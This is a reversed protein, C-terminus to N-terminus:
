MYIIMEVFCGLIVLTTSFFLYFKVTKFNNILTNKRLHQISKNDLIFNKEMVFLMDLFFAPILFINPLFFTNLIEIFGFKDYLIFMIASVYGISVGRFLFVGSSIFIGYPMYGGAIILIHYKGYKFLVQFINQSVQSNKFVEMIVAIDEKIENNTINATFAGFTVAFLFICCILTEVTIEPIIKKNYRCRKENSRSKSKSKSRPKNIKIKYNKM